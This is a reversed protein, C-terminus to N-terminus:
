APAFLLEQQRWGLPVDVARMLDRRTLSTPQTGELIAEILSPSLCAIRILDAAYKISYGHHEAVATLSIGTEIQRRAIFAQGILKVLHPNPLREETQPPIILRSGKGSRVCGIAMSLTLPQMADLAPDASALDVTISLMRDDIDIRAVLQQVLSRQAATCPGALMAGIETCRQELRKVDSTSLDGVAIRAEVAERVMRGFMVTVLGEIDPASVRWGPEGMADSESQSRYYRYRRGAKNAHSPSMYRGHADRILGALLSPAQAHTGSRRAIRADALQRQVREFTETDIIADHQGRYHTSKHIVEGVYIRNQLIAYLAGRSLVHGGHRRGQANVCLKRRIGKAELERMLALASGLELYRSFIYRISIAEEVEVLLKRDEVRYGFPVVGGMWMGKAKSAAIKDRIREGTVEREFQAFSLLVNLTLRGMSTTTNFSQTVSVFSAGRGDLIEVIKAFDVLSRTLRDVKYVVIVDVRGAAVEAMLLKLAPREMSGGSYGGDDYYDPVLTWGEHRQSVIYAACAERQADLSNFGQELGEETSKRTYIACRIPAPTLPARERM